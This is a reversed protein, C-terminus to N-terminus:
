RPQIPTNFYNLPEDFTAYDLNVMLLLYRMGTKPDSIIIHDRGAAEIVGRFIKANWEKNNEYTMYFTGVKGLNLRLINEIFSEELPLQSTQGGGPVGTGGSGAGPPPFQGPYSPYGPIQAGPYSTGPFQSGPYSPYGGQASGPYSPYTMYGPGATGYSKSGPNSSITM